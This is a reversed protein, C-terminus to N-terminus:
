SSPLSLDPLIVTSPWCPCITQSVGNGFYGSYFPSATHSL